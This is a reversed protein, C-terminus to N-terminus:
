FNCKVTSNLFHRRRKEPSVKTEPPRKRREEFRRYLHMLSIVAVALIVLLLWEGSEGRSGTKLELHKLAKFFSKDVAWATQLFALSQVL